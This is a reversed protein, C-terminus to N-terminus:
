RRLALPSGPVWSRQRESLLLEGAPFFRCLHNTTGVTAIGDPAKLGDSAKPYYKDLVPLPVPFAPTRKSLFYTGKRSRCTNM